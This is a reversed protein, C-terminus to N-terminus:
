WTYRVTYNISRRGGPKLEVRFEITQPMTQVYDADARIIEYEPWRYLHEVVRVEAVNESTNALRVQFSEEYVHHPKVEVYGIREREGSLGRAPGVRVHGMGDVPMPLLQEEGILDVAGDARLQYLRCLGPPLNVGLGFNQRNEFEVHTQVIRHYETGFNWDTRRNRQYRDFRVGDYVHFKKIPLESSQVLQVFTPRENELTITRPLEYVEIPALAAISREFGPERAGYAYRLGPQTTNVGQSEDPMIPAAMGKETLLLRVRAKEYRGGSTNDIRVRASFDAQMADSALYMEYTTNWQLGEAQYALRFNQPGEQRARVNWILQPEVALIDRGFPFAISSVEAVPILWLNKGDRSRVPLEADGALPGAVLIGERTSAADQVIVPQGIMRRMVALRDVLDFQLHQELLEFPASRAAAGYSASAPIIKPPLDRIILQNDGQELTIRRAENVMGFGTDYISVTVGQPSSVDQKKVEQAQAFGAIVLLAFMSPIRQRLHRMM